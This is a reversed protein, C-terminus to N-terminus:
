IFVFSELGHVPLFYANQNLIVFLGWVLQLMKKENFHMLCKNMYLYFINNFSAVDSATM